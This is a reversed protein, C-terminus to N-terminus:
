TSAGRVVRFESSQAPTGAVMGGDVPLLTGTVYASRDSAFFLAVEALDSTTGQKQLPQRSLLFARVKKMHEAREEEPLHSAVSQELIPTEINGPAICNVRVGYQGLDLAASKTFMIVAAKSCHYAWLSPAHQIGGISTINIISGGGNAAMHRGAERTGTMVGLLNVGMVRHFDAFDDDFLTPHRAGSIGANNFMVNLGGFKSVAFSVLEAVQAPDAVDTLKFAADSGLAEAVEEGADRDSDAVVVRAGEDVFRRATGLGIGSAGGTVVAVKGALENAVVSDEKGV